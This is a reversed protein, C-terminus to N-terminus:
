GTHGKSEKNKFYDDVSMNPNRELFRALEEDGKILEAMDLTYPIDLTFKYMLENWLQQFKKNTERNQDNDLKFDKPLLQPLKNSVAIVRERYKEPIGQEQRKYFNIEKCADYLCRVAKQHTITGQSTVAELKQIGRELLLEQFQELTKLPLKALIEPKNLGKELLQALGQMRVKNAKMKEEAIKVIEELPLRDTFKLVTDVFPGVRLRFNSLNEKDAFFSDLSGRLEAELTEKSQFVGDKFYGESKRGDPWTLTGIGTRKNNVFEGVYKRGDPWTLTGVGTQYEDVWDGVYTREDFSTLTGIGTRQGDVFDGVYRDGNPWTLTGKGTLLNNVFDGVYKRGDLWTLTGKGIRKGKVFDGVYKRGDLWTYTGRGTRQNNVFDGVYNEGNAWTFTGKGTRQGNVYDGVYRNGNPWTFTGKGNQQGNVFDGVYRNGNPWTYTGKGTLEDNVYDGVYKRGDSWTYTGKGAKQGNVFDGVYSDGDPWTYTGKGAQKGNVYDGVYKRGDLWTFTGRGTLKNNVWDGVYKCGNSWTYTGKGTRKGNVYDGVYSDGDPWTISGKGNQLGNVYKGVYKCGNSWVVGGKFSPKSKLLNDITADNIVTADNINASCHIELEKLGPFDETSPLRTIKTNTLVVKQSLERGKLNQVTEDDVGDCILTHLGKINMLLNVDDSTLKIKLSVPAFKEVIEQLLKTFRPRGIFRYSNKAIEFCKQASADLAERLEKCDTQKILNGIEKLLAGDEFAEPPLNLIKSAIAQAIKPFISPVDLYNAQQSLKLLDALEKHQLSTKDSNFLDQFLSIDLVSDNPVTINIAGEAKNKQFEEADQYLNRFYQSSGWIVAMPVSVSKADEGESCFCVNRFFDDRSLTPIKQESYDKRLAVIKQLLSTPLAIEGVRGKVHSIEDTGPPTKAVKRELDEWFKLEQAIEALTTCGLKEAQTFLPTALKPQSSEILSSLLPRVTPEQVLRELWRINMESPDKAWKDLASKVTYSGDTKKMLVWSTSMLGRAFANEALAMREQRSKETLPVGKRFLAGVKALNADEEATAHSALMGLVEWSREAKSPDKMITSSESSQLWQMFAKRTKEDQLNIKLKNMDGLKFLEITPQLFDDTVGTM